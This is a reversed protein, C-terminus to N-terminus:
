SDPPHERTFDLLEKLLRSQQGLNRRIMEITARMEAPATGQLLEEVGLLAPTLPTQLEVFLRALFQETERAQQRRIANEHKQRAASPGRLSLILASPDASDLLRGVAAEVPCWAGQRTLFCFDVASHPEFNEIVCFLAHYLPRVDTASVFDFVNRGVLDNPDYGLLQRAAANQYLIKGPQNITLIADPISDLLAQLRSQDERFREQAARLLYARGTRDVVADVAGGTLAHLSVETDALRRALHQVTANHLESNFQVVAESM